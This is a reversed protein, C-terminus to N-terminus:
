CAVADRSRNELRSQRACTRENDFHLTVFKGIASNHSINLFYFFNTSWAIIERLIERSRTEKM